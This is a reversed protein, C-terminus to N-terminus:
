RPFSSPESRSVTCILGTRDLLEVTHDLVIWTTGGLVGVGTQGQKRLTASGGLARRKVFGEVVDERNMTLECVNHGLGTQDLDAAHLM